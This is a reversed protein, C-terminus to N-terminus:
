REGTVEVDVRRDPQLCAILAATARSGKCDDPTTEPSLEGNGSATIRNGDIGANTVLYAKVADAREVSLRQNYEASGLRDTNGQVSITQFRTGALDRAFTDLAAKGDPTITSKDFGFLSDASFQVRVPQVVAAVPVVVVPPPPPAVAVPAPAVEPAVYGRAPAYVQKPAKRGFPFVLAVSFQNVDGWNNVGDKVRYREAEGRVLLSPSVEYQLGLGVKANTDQQSPSSAMTPLMSTGIFNDRTNAYQVGLRASASWRQSLPLTYIADLNVGDIEYRGNFTGTPMVASYTFKGLNFYGLEWSFHPTVQYGGFIKYATDQRENVLSLPTSAFGLVSNTTTQENLQNHSQGASLGGYWYGSDQTGQANASASLVALGALGFMHLPTLKKM